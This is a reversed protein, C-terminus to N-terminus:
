KPPFMRFNNGIDASISINRVPHVDAFL